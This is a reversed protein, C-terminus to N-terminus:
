GKKTTKVRPAARRAARNPVAVPKPPSGPKVNLRILAELQSINAQLKAIVVDKAALQAALRQNVEENVDIQPMQWDDPLRFIQSEDVEPAAPPAEEVQAETM